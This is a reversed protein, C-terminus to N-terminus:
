APASVVEDPQMNIFAEGRIKTIWSQLAEEYKREFILQQIQRHKDSTKGQMEANRIGAIHIIHFGNATQIPGLIDGEKTLLIQNAFASPVEPLKRWGLDGGQLAKSDGSEAAATERFSAGKRLKEALTEARKKAQTVDLTSPVEPLVVLIDELHYEKNNHAQWAASRMFDDVEQSSVTIKSGIAQQQIQHILYEDYIEKRYSEKDIGRKSLEQYLQEVTLGNKKAISNITKDLAADSVEIGALDALQLQLRKNVLQELVQKHLVEPPPTSSHTAAFQKKIKNIEGNLESEVIVGNNVIAVIRDLSQKNSQTDAFTYASLLFSGFLTLCFKFGASICKIM